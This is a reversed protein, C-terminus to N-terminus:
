PLSARADDLTPEIHLVNLLGLVDMLDRINKPLYVMQMSGGAAEFRDTLNVMFAVGTSNMYELETCDFIIHRAGKDFLALVEEKFRLVTTASVMGQIKGIVLLTGDPRKESAFDLQVDDEM